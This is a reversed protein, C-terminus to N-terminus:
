RGVEAPVDDRYLPLQPPWNPNFAHFDADVRVLCPYHFNDMLIIDRYHIYGM